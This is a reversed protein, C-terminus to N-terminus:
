KIKNKLLLKQSVTWYVATADFQPLYVLLTSIEHANIANLPFAFLCEKEARVNKKVSRRASYYVKNM